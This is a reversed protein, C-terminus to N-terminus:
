SVRLPKATERNVMVGPQREELPCRRTRVQADPVELVLNQPNDFSHNAGPYETFQIDKGVAPAKECLGPM